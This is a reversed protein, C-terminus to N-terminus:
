VPSAEWFLVFIISFTTHHQLFFFDTMFNSRHLWMNCLIGLLRHTQPPHNTLILPWPSSNHTISQTYTDEFLVLNNSSCTAYLSFSVLSLQVTENHFLLSCTSRSSHIHPTFLPTPRSPWVCWSDNKKCPSLTLSKKVGLNYVIVGWKNM